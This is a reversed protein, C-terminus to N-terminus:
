QIFIYGYIRNLQSMIYNLVQWLYISVVSWGILVGYFHQFQNCLNYFIPVAFWFILISVVFFIFFYFAHLNYYMFFLISLIILATLIQYIRIVRRELKENESKIVVVFLNLLFIIFQYTILNYEWTKIFMPDTFIPQRLDYVFLYLSAIGIHSWISLSFIISYLAIIIMLAIIINLIFVFVSNKITYFTKKIYLGLFFLINIVSVINYSDLPRNLFYYILQILLSIGLLKFLVKMNYEKRM